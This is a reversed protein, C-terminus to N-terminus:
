IPRDSSARCVQCCTAIMTHRLEAAVVTPMARTAEASVHNLQFTIMPAIATTAAINSKTLRIPSIQAELDRGEFYPLQHHDRPRPHQRFAEATAQGLEDVNRCEVNLTALLALTQRGM